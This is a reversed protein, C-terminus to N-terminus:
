QNLWKKFPVVRDISVIAEMNNDLAPKLEIKIRSRSFVVMKVISHISVIFKRSIRFFCQPDLQLELKDLTMDLPYIKGDFTCIFNYREMAYFYAVQSVELTIIKDAIQILFRKKYEVPNGQILSMFNQIDIGSLSSRLTKYKELATVLDAENYPKLLYAISNLQFAKIAYQDYATTFIIPTNIQVQEFISFSLGDSLQIDLFILDVANCMLWRVTDKISGTQGVIEFDPAIKPLMEALRQASVQEDEVILVKM